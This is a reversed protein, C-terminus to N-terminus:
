RGAGRALEVLAAAGSGGSVEAGLRDLLEILQGEGTGYWLEGVARLRKAEGDSKPDLSALKARLWEEADAVCRAGLDTARHGRGLTMAFVPTGGPPVLPRMYTLYSGGLVSRLESDEGAEVLVNPGIGPVTDAVWEWVNGLQDYTGFPGRGSEFTGVPATAGLGLELTNAVSRRQNQGWPYAHGLRGTAVYLWEGATPLRMGRREALVVAENWSLVAPRELDTNALDEAGEGGLDRRRVEFRDVLLATESGAEVGGNFDPLDAEGAPVFVLRELEEFAREREAERAQPGCGALGLVLAVGVWPPVSASKRADM